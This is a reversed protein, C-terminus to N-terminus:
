LGFKTRIKDVIHSAIPFASTAAPSPANCVHLSYNSECFLFDHVMAGDSNVAQARIGAPYPMLESATLTPCFKRVRQLYHRKMLSDRFEQLGTGSYQRSLAWFGPFTLIDFTDKLNFNLKRYGERKWGLVANPGVTVRGDITKTLHVGLFPLEPNPIPYILHNILSRRSSQIQYYEGRFPIIRYNIKIGMSRAIRDSMLGGCAVFYRTQCRMDGIRLTVGTGSESIKLVPKHLECLGGQRVFLEGMKQTIRTYDTIGTAPVFLAGDGKVNPEEQQLEASSWQHVEIENETCRKELALMQDFERENTAVLLKGCQEFPINHRKCFAYTDQAGQKCMRAKLSGPAYYVGAHIVGSNHGTQHFSLEREKEALLIRADPFTNILMLATAVGVIGGGAIVFDCERMLNGRQMRYLQGAWYYCSVNSNTKGQIEFEVVTKDSARVNDDLPQPSACAKKLRYNHVASSSTWEQKIYISVLSTGATKLM